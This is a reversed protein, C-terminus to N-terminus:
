GRTLEDKVAEASAEKIIAAMDLPGDDGSAMGASWAARLRAVDVDNSGRQASWLRLADRIADSTTAYEGAAVAERLLDVMPESLAVTVRESMAM